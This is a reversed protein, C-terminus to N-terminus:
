NKGNINDACTFKNDSLTYKKKCLTLNEASKKCVNIFYSQMINSAKYCIYFTKLINENYKM